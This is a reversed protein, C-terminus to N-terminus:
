VVLGLEKAVLGHTRLVHPFTATQMLAEFWWLHIVTVTRHWYRCSTRQSQTSAGLHLFANECSRFCFCLVTRWCQDGFIVPETTGKLSLQQAGSPRLTKGSKWWGSGGVSTSPTSSCLLVTHPCPTKGLVTFSPFSFVSFDAGLFLPEWVCLGIKGSNM